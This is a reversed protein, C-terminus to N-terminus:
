ATQEWTGIAEANWHTAQTPDGAAECIDKYIVRTIAASSDFGNIKVM